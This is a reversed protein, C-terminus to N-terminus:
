EVKQFPIDRGIATYTRNLATILDARTLAHYAGDNTVAHYHTESERLVLTCLLLLNPADDRRLPFYAVDHLPRHRFVPGSGAPRREDLPSSARLLQSEVLEELREPRRQHQSEYAEIARAIERCADESVAFGGEQTPAVKVPGQRVLGFYIALTAALGLVIGWSLPTQQSKTLM